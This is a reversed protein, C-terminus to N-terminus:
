MNGRLLWAFWLSILALSTELESPLLGLAAVPLSQAGVYPAIFPGAAIALGPKRNRLAHIILVAGAGALYPFVSLNWGVKVASFLELPWFGYPICYLLSVIGLPAATKILSKWSGQLYSDIMWYIAIGIGAQPKALVFILGLPRPLLLGLPIMFDLNAYLIGWWLQPTLLMMLTIFVSAGLKRLALIWAVVSALIIIWVAIPVPLWTLPTLLHIVWPPSYFAPHNYPDGSAIAPLFTGTWDLGLPLATLILSPAFLTIFLFLGVGLVTIRIALRIIYQWQISHLPVTNM